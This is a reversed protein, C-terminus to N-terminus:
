GKLRRTTAERIIKGIKLAEKETFFDSKIANCRYCALIMNELIYPKTNDKRDITLRKFRKAFIDECEKIEKLTRNCYYCRKNQKVWWKSFEEKGFNLTIRRKKAGALLHAYIGEPTQFWLAKKRNLEERHDYYYKKVYEKRELIHRRYDERRQKKAKKHLLPDSKIKLWRKKYYEKRKKYYEKGTNM